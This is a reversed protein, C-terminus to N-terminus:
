CCTNSKGTKGQVIQKKAEFKTPHFRVGYDLKFDVIEM